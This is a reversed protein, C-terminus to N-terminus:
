SQGGARRCATAVARRTLEALLHKRYSASARIDSSAAIADALAQGAAEAGPDALPRGALAREIDGARVPVSTAGACAIRAAGIRGDVAEIIAGVAVVAFDGHREAFELFAGASGPVPVPVEVGVVIEGDELATTFAGTFFAAAPIRREGQRSAAVIVADHLVAVLPLEATPDAHALSGGLSGRNRITPHAIYDAAARFLPLHQAIIPDQMLQAHRVLAGLRVVGGDHEIRDFGLANIDVLHLPRALRLNMMAVLSYGGALPRAEEGLEHLLDLAQELSEPRHYDFSVPRM